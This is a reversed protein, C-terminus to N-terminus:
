VLNSALIELSTKDLLIIRNRERKLYGKEELERLNRGVVDRVSGIHAAIEDQTFRNTKGIHNAQEVFFKALRSRVPMLGLDSSKESLKYLRQALMKMLTIDFPLSNEILLLFDARSFSIISVDSLAFAHARNYPDNDLFLPVLNIIQGKEIIELVLKRGNLSSKAIEVQGEAVFIINEIRDGELFIIEGAKYQKTLVHSNLQDLLKSDLVSFLDFDLLNFHKHQKM